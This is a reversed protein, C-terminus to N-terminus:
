VGCDADAHVHVTDGDNLNPRDKRGCKRMDRDVTTATWSLHGRGAADATITVPFSASGYIPQRSLVVQAPNVNEDYATVYINDTTDNSIIVMVGEGGVASTSALGIVSWLLMMAPRTFHRM